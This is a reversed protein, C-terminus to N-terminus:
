HLGLDINLTLSVLWDIIISIRCQSISMSNLDSIYYIIYQLYLYFIYQYNPNNQFFVSLYIETKNHISKLLLKYMRQTQIAWNNLFFIRM